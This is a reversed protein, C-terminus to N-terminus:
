NAGGSSGAVHKVFCISGVVGGGIIGFAVGNQILANVEHSALSKQINKLSTLNVAYIEIDLPTGDESLFPETLITKFARSPLINRNSPATIEAGRKLMECAGDLCHLVWIKNEANSALFTKMEEITKDPLNKFHILIGEEAMNTDDNIHSKRPFVGGDFRAGDAVLYAHGKNSFGLVVSKQNGFISRLDFRGGTAKIGKTSTLPIQLESLQATISQILCHSLDWASLASQPLGLCIALAISFHLGRRSM